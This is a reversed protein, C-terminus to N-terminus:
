EPIYLERTIPMGVVSYNKLADFKESRTVELIVVVRM